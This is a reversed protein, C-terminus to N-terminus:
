PEEDTLDHDVQPENGLPLKSHEQVLLTLPRPSSSPWTARLIPRIVSSFSVWARASCNLMCTTLRM